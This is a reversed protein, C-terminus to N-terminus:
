RWGTKHLCQSYAERMKEVRIKAEIIAPRLVTEIKEKIKKISAQM